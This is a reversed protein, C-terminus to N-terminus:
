ASPTGAEVEARAPDSDTLVELISAAVAFLVPGMVIGLMGFVQIGGLLAFFMVLSGVFALAMMATALWGSWPEGIKKGFLLLVVAGFAPLVPIVWALDLLDRATM